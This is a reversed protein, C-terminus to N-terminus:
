PLNRPSVVLINKTPEPFYGRPTGRVMLDDLHRQIGEINVGEGADDVYWPQNIGPHSERLERILPLIRMGYAVMAMPYGQTVGETSFILQGTGDVSRIVLTAWHRYCNFIFRAGSHWEFRVKWLMATSSEEDFGLGGGPYTEAVPAACRQYRGWIGAELGSYLQETRCAEKSEARTVVLVCKM